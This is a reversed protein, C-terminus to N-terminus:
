SIPPACATKCSHQAQNPLQQNVTPPNDPAGYSYLPELKWATQAAIQSWEEQLTQLTKEEGRVVFWWRTIRKLDEGATQYKRKVLVGEGVTSLQQITAKVVATTATKKTGWVRRAGKVPHRMRTSKPDRSKAAKGESGADKAGQTGSWAAAPQKLPGGSGVDVIRQLTVVTAKLSRIEAALDSVSRQLVCIVRGQHESTCTPCVFSEATQALQQFRYKPVNACWRHLWCGCEGKCLLAEQGDMCDTAEQIEETCMPCIYAGNDTVPQKKPEVNGEAM